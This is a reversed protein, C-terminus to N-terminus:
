ISFSSADREREANEANVNAKHETLARVAETHGWMSALYLPTEEYLNQLNVNAKHEALARVAEANGLSSAWHLATYGVLHEDVDAGTEQANVEAGEEILRIIEETNGNSAACNLLDENLEVREEESLVKTEVPPKALVSGKSEISAM